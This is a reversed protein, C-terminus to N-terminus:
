TKLRDRRVVIRIEVGQQLCDALGCAAFHHQVGAEIHFSLGITFVGSSATSVKRPV